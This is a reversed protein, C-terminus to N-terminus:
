DVGAPHRRRLELTLPTWPLSSCTCARSGGSLVDKANGIVYGGGHFQLGVYGAGRRVKRLSEDLDGRYWWVGDIPGDLDVEATRAWEKLEDDILDLSIPPITAEITNAAAPIPQTRTVRGQLKRLLRRMAVCVTACLLLQVFCIRNLLPHVALSDLGLTRLLTSPFIYSDGARSRWAYLRVPTACQASLCGTATRGAKACAMWQVRLREALTDTPRCNSTLHTSYVSCWCLRGLSSCAGTARWTALCPFYPVM